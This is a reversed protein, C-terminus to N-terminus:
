VSFSNLNLVFMQEICVNYEQYTDKKFQIREEGSVGVLVAAQVATIAENYVDGVQDMLCLCSPTLIFPPKDQDVWLRERIGGQVPGRGSEDGSQALESPPLLTRGGPASLIIFLVLCCM